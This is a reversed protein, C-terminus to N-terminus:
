FRINQKNIDKDVIVVLTDVIRHWKQDLQSTGRTREGFGMYENFIKMM